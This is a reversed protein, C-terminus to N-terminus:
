VAGFPVYILKEPLLFDYVVANPFLVGDFRIVENPEDLFISDIRCLFLLCM